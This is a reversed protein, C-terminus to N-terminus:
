RGAFANPTLAALSQFAPKAFYYGQFLELGFSQLVSLEEYTEIGEALPIISLEGCLQLIAKVIAQRNRDQDIHRILAMDLKIIDTQIEALLNLGSYGAGFDDIATKFGQSQYYRVIELLHAHDKVQEGETIEFIIRDVPFGYIKAAELTTRICLEPRYVANPMFNISLFTDMNLESALKIAKTRCSQDFRYCNADNVQEFVKGAPENNLGRALAEHAYISQTTTNVIPQFAMTFDFGLGVGGACEACGLQKYHNDPKM